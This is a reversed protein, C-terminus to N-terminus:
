SYHLFFFSLLCLGKVLILSVAISQDGLRRLAQSASNLNQITQLAILLLFHLLPYKTKQNIFEFKVESYLYGSYCSNFTFLLLFTIMDEKLEMLEIMNQNYNYCWNLPGKSSLWLLFALQLGTFLTANLM